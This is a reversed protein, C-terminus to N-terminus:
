FARRRRHFEDPYEARLQKTKEKLVRKKERRQQNLTVLVWRAASEKKQAAKLRNLAEVV